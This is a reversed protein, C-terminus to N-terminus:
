TSSIRSRSKRVHNRNMRDGSRLHVTALCYTGTACSNAFHTVSPGPFDRSSINRNVLIADLERHLFRAFTPLTDTYHMMRIYTVDQKTSRATSGTTVECNHSREDSRLIYQKYGGPPTIMEQNTYKQM